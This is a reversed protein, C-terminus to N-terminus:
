LAKIFNDLVGNVFAHSDKTGYKKAINIAENLAVPRPTNEIYKIEHIGMLVALRNIIGIDELGGKKLFPVIDQELSKENGLYGSILQTAFGKIELDIDNDPHEDDPEVYTVDFEELIEDLHELIDETCATNSLKLNYLFKFAYNRARTKKEANM